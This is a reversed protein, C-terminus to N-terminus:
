TQGYFVDEPQNEELLHGLLASWSQMLTSVVARYICVVLLTVKSARKHDLSIVYINSM